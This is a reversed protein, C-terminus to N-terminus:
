LAGNEGKWYERAEIVAEAELGDFCRCAAYTGSGACEYCIAYGRLGTGRCIWCKRHACLGLSARAEAVDHLYKLAAVQSADGFRLPSRALVVKALHSNV